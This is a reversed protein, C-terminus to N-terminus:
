RFYSALADRIQLTKVTLYAPKKMQLFPVRFRTCRAEWVSVVGHLETSSNCVSIQVAHANFQIVSTSSLARPPGGEGRREDENRKREREIVREGVRRKREWGESNERCITRVFCACVLRHFEGGLASWRGSERYVGPIVSETRLTHSIATSSGVSNTIFSSWLYSVRYRHINMRDPNPRPQSDNPNQRLRNSM